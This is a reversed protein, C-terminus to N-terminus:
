FVTFSLFSVLRSWWGRRPRVLVPAFAELRGQLREVEERLVRDLDM